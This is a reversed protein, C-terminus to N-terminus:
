SWWQPRSRQDTRLDRGIYARGLGHEGAGTALATSGSSAGSRFERGLSLDSLANWRCRHWGPWAGGSASTSPWRRGTLPIEGAPHCNVCRPHSLVKGAEVFIAIARDSPDVISEFAEPGQLGVNVHDGSGQATLSSVAIGVGLLTLTPVLGRLLRRM